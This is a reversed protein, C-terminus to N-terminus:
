QGAKPNFRFCPLPIAIIEIPHASRPPDIRAGATSPVAAPSEGPLPRATPGFHPPAAATNRGRECACVLGNPVLTNRRRPSSREPSGHSRALRATSVAAALSRCRSFKALINISQAFMGGPAFEDLDTTTHTFAGITGADFGAGRTRVTGGLSVSISHSPVCLSLHYTDVLVRDRPAALLMGISAWPPPSLASPM